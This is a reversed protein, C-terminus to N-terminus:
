NKNIVIFNQAYKNGICALTDLLATGILRNIEYTNNSLLGFQYRLAIYFDAFDTYKNVKKLISIYTYFINEQKKIYEKLEKKFMEYEKDDEKELGPKELYLMEIYENISINNDIEFKQINSPTMVSTILDELMLWSLLNYISEIIKDERYAIEYLKKLEEIDEENFFITQRKINDYINKQLVYAKKFNCNELSKKTSILPFLTDVYKISTEKENLKELDFKLSTFDSYLLEDVTIKFYKAIINLYEREPVRIGNEYQSIAQKTIFRYDDDFRKSSSGASVLDDAMNNQSKGFAKRLAKINRGLNPYMKNEM